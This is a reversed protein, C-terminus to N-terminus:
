GRLAADMKDVLAQWEPTENGKDAMIEMLGYAIRRHEEDLDRLKNLLFMYQGRPSSLTKVLAYLVLAAGSRPNSQLLKLTTDLADPNM